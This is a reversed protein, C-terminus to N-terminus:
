TATWWSPSMWEHSTAVLPLAEGCAVQMVTGAIDSPLQWCAAGVLTLSKYRVLVHAATQVDLKAVSVDLAHQSAHGM